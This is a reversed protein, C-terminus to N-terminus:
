HPIPAEPLSRPLRSLLALSTAGAFAIEPSMREPLQIPSALGEPEGLRDRNSHAANLSDSSEDQKKDSIGEVLRELPTEISATALAPDRYLTEIRPGISTFRLWVEVTRDDRLHMLRYLEPAVAPPEEAVSMALLCLGQESLIEVLEIPAGVKIEVEM